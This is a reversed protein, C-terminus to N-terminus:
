RARRNSLTEIVADVSALLAILDPLTAHAFPPPLGLARECLRAMRGDMGSLDVTRGADLSIQAARVANTVAELSARVSVLEQTDHETPM